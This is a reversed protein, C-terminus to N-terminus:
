LNGLRIPVIMGSHSFEFRACYRSCDTLGDDQCFNCICASLQSDLDDPILTLDQTRIPENEKDRSEATRTHTM